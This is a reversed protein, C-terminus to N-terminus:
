KFSDAFVPAIMAVGRSKRDADAARNDDRAIVILASTGYAHAARARKGGCFVDPAPIAFTEHRESM